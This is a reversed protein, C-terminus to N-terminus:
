HKKLFYFLNLIKKLIWDTEARKRGKQIRNRYNM